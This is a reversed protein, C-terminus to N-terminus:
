DKNVETSDIDLTTIIDSEGLTLYQYERILLYQSTSFNYYQWPIGAVGNILIDDLAISNDLNTNFFNEPYQTSDSTSDIVNIETGNGYYSM